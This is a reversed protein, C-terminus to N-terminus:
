VQDNKATYQTHLLEHSRHGLPEELFDLYLSLVEQNEHSKRIPMYRDEGYIAEVREERKTNSTTIPQGGGGVCGGPCAMVEVFHYPSTGNQVDEMIRRANGLGHVVAVKVPTGDLDIEAERLGEMGRVETLEIQELDRGTVVEYVTRLAAEMVGGTAGFLVGAGTYEGMWPDFAAGQTDAPHIGTMKFLRGIERTTLVLDVDQFGSDNMEPRQAEYKKATCPMISVSYINALDIGMKDAWYGKVLSGFMQQPSKCSSLHDLQEPYFVEAFRVWAPCCSTFMPLAGGEQIRRLLEHGEEMITLDATFNTHLVYDFGLEKLGAVFKDMSLEGTEMGLEEAIAIRVAPAIQTVLIKKPDAAAQFFDDVQEKEHIAGVPCAHICQGCMVCATEFLDKDMSPVVQSDYGRYALGLANVTQISSCVEICRGCLICKNPDRVIAPSSIDLPLDRSDQEFCSQRVNYETTLEQLECQGNRICHLCDQPHHALILELITKRAEMVRATNTRINMGEAAMTSCSPLLNKQEEVDVVCVRCNAKVAQDPYHCLTPIKVGCGQAAQLITTGVPVSTERGNITINIM